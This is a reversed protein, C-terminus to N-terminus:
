WCIMILLGAGGEGGTGATSGTFAAGGGGGGSGYGGQGGKGGNSTGAAGFGGGGGSGGLTMPYKPRLNYGPNGDGASTSADVGGVGGPNSPFIGAGTIDGGATGTGGGGGGGTVLGGSNPLAIATVSAVSGAAGAQGVVTQWNGMGALPMSSIISLAGASGGAGGAVTNGNAGFGGGTASLLCNAAVSDPYVTVRTNVGTAGPLGGRGVSLYLTDPLLALPITMLVQGSSGGGGGGGAAAAAGVGGGGGGGGGGWAMMYLTSKGRPKQWTMWATSPASANGSFVELTAGQPLHNFDLM